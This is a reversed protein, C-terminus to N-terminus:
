EIAIMEMFSDMQFNRYRLRIIEELDKLASECISKTMKTGHKLYVRTHIEDRMARIKEIKEYIEKNRKLIKLRKLV